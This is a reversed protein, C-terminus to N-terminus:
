QHLFILFQQINGISTAVIKPSWVTMTKLFSTIDTDRMEEIKQVEKQKLHLLFSEVTFKKSRITREVNYRCRCMAYFRETIETFCAPVPTYEGKIKRLVSDNNQFGALLYIVRKPPNVKWRPLDPAQKEANVDIHCVERLFDERLTVIAHSDTLRKQGM